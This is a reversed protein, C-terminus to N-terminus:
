GDSANADDDADGNAASASEDPVEKEWGDPCSAVDPYYAQYEDCWYWYGPEEGAPTYPDPYPEMPTPYWYWDPGVVWWWGDRGGSRGHWWHGHHWRNRDVHPDHDRHNDNGHNRHWDDADRGGRGGDHHPPGERDVRHQGDRGGDHHPAHYRGDTDPPPPHPL